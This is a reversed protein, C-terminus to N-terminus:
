HKTTKLTVADYFGNMWLLEELILKELMLSPTRDCTSLDEAADAADEFTPYFAETIIGGANTIRFVEFM